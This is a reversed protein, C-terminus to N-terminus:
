AMPRSIASGPRRCPGCRLAVALWGAALPLTGHAEPRLPLVALRVLAIGALAHAAAHREGLGRLAAHLAAFGLAELGAAACCGAAVCGLKAVACALPLAPLSAALFRARAAARWPATALLGAPALLLSWGRALLAGLALGVVLRLADATGLPRRVGLLATWLAACLAGTYLADGSM